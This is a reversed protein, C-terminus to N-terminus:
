GRRTHMWGTMASPRGGDVGATDRWVKTLYGDGLEISGREVWEGESSKKYVRKVASWAVAAAYGEQTLDTDADEYSDWAGNYASVWIERAGEPLAPFAGAGDSKTAPVVFLSGPERCGFALAHEIRGRRVEAPRVLGALYPVGAGRSNFGIPPVGSWKM